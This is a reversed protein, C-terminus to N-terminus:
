DASAGETVGAAAQAARERLTDLAERVEAAMRANPFDRVLQLGVTVADQWRRETVAFRFQVGLQLLKEKFVDRASVRLAEAESPSLYQDLERLIEIAHDTDSRRVAEDWALKLEQKHDEQLVKMRDQLSIVRADSPLAHILRDIETRAREWEHAKFHGEILDIAENLKSQIADRRAEELEARMSKAAEEYGFRREMEDILSITPEWQQQLIGTRIVTRLTEVEQERYVVSKAADSLQTNRAISELTGTQNALAQRLERTEALERALTVEMKLLLAMGTMLTIAAFLVFAGGVVMWGGAWTGPRVLGIGILLLAGLMALICTVHHLWRLQSFREPSSAM